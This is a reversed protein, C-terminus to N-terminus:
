WKKLNQCSATEQGKGGRSTKAHSLKRDRVVEQLKPMLTEQGKGGRSTKAHSLKRDRVVEQLKPM